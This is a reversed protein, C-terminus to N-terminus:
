VGKEMIFGVVKFGQKKAVRVLGPRRTQFGVTRCNEKKALQELVCLGPVALGATKVAAAGSVWLEAGRKKVVFVGGADGVTLRFCDGSEAISQPEGRRAPNAVGVAELVPAADAASIKELAIKEM